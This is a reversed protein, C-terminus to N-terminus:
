KKFLIFALAIVGGVLIKPDIGNLISKDNQTNTTDETVLYGADQQSQLLGSNDIEGAFKKIGTGLMGKSALNLGTGIVSGAISGVKQWRESRAEQFAPSSKMEFKALKREQKADRKAKRRALRADRRAGM